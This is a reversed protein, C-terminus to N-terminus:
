PLAPEATWLVRGASGVFELALGLPITVPLSSRPDVRNSDLDVYRARAAGGLGRWRWRLKISRPYEDEIVRKLEAPMDPLRWGCLTDDTAAARWCKFRPSRGATLQFGPKLASSCAPAFTALALPDAGRDGQGVVLRFENGVYVLRPCHGDGGDADAYLVTSRVQRRQEAFLARLRQDGRIGAELLQTQYAKDHREARQKAVAPDLRAAWAVMDDDVLAAYLPWDAVRRGDAVTPLGRAFAAGYDAPKANESPEDAVALGAALLPLVALGRAIRAPNM